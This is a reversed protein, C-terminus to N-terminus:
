TPQFEIICYETFVLAVAKRTFFAARSAKCFPMAASTTM